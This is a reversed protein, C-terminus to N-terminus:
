HRSPASRSAVGLASRLFDLQFLLLNEAVVEQPTMHTVGSLPLVQHPRGAALLAASLQLTHAAVVNDDALGHVLLLPRVPLGASAAEAVATAVSPTLAGDTVLSSRAYAGSNGAPTGLYRETYHTDYLAWDTVPAGAIGAHFVDPRLLVALAALYGGFSWGRIGVRTLDLDPCHGAAAHLADIQDALVPGALDGHVEWEWQRDRGPTGRGDAVVVAFGQDAWWQAENFANRASLVRQAHPGGYPDMLVPLVTGPVHGTPLLLATRVAREGGLLMRPAPTVPPVAAFSAIEGLAEGCRLVTTRRGAFDLGASSLVVVDGGAAADHVGPAASLRTPTDPAVPVWTGHPTDPRDPAAPNLAASRYVHVETPCDPESAAFLVRGEAVGLVARVYMGQNSLRDVSDVVLSREWGPGSVTLLMEPALWAPTGEVLDEWPEYNGLHHHTTAGSAVDITRVEGNRQDRAQVHLLPPGLSSWHVGALYEYRAADWTVEVRSGDLDFLHLSVAANPTGAAPYAVERPNAGPSALDAIHWRQVPANDVRAVLLASGDPSWWYGRYRGMEEAAIFEALGWTVDGGADQGPLERDGTGDAGIVRLAGGCVYAIQRGTPDPRPDLVPGDVELARVGATGVLDATYLGGSLAFAAISVAADTAYGVVGAAGERTRERRAREAASLEETGALVARPDVAVRETVSDTDLDAVWLMTTRDTGSGSRLFVVRSGDPSVALNRPAGLTFRQTRASLRPYSESM